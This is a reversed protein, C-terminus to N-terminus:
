NPQREVEDARARLRGRRLWRSKRPTCPPNRAHWLYPMMCHLSCRDVNGVGHISAQLAACSAFPRRNALQDDAANLHDDLGLRAALEHQREDRRVLGSCEIEGILLDVVEDTKGSM